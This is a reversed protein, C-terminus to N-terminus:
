IVSHYGVTWFFSGTADICSGVVWGLWEVKGVEVEGIESFLWAEVSGLRCRFFVEEEWRSAYDWSRNCLPQPMILDLPHLKHIGEPFGSPSTDEAVVHAESTCEMEM